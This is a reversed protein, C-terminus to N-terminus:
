ERAGWSLRQKGTQELACMPGAAELRELERENRVLLAGCFGLANISISTFCERTRPVMMMWDRTCLLNYPLTASAPLNELFRPGEGIAQSPAFRDLAMAAAMELYFRHLRDRDAELRRGVPRAFRVVRHEFPLVPITAPADQVPVADLLPSIPITMAGTHKAPKGDQGASAGGGGPSITGEPVMQLHKHPQSAGATEGANYFVLGPYEALCLCVARFDARTLPALQHEFARTVMLVHYDVVNFKNLLCVHSENLDAVFMDQDYPLFPDGATPSQFIDRQQTAAAKRELNAVVRVHFNVGRDAITTARTPISVLAGREMARATATRVRSWLTGPELLARMENM